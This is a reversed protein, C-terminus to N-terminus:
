DACQPFHRLKVKVESLHRKDLCTDWLLNPCISNIGNLLVSAFQEETAPHQPQSTIKALSARYKTLAALTGRSLPLDFTDGGILPDRNSRGARHLDLLVLAHLAFDLWHLRSAKRVMINALDIVLSLRWQYAILVEPPRPPMPAVQDWLLRDDVCTLGFHSDELNWLESRFRASRSQLTLANLFTPRQQLMDRGGLMDIAAELAESSIIYSSKM